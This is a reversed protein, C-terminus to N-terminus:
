EWENRLGKQWILPNEINRFMAKGEMKQFIGRLREKQTEQKLPQDFLIIVRANVNAYEDYEKPLHIIGKEIQTTFELANM